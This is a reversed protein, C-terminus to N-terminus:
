EGRETWVRLGDDAAPAILVLGAMDTRIARTHTALLIGLLTPTPHGYDNIGVGILGVRANLQAYLEASQDASGHHAVKVVDIDRPAGARLLANQAAEGLDGLFIASISGLEIQITVSSPNGPETTGNPWLVVYPAEGLTGRDGRAVEDLEAGGAILEQRLRTDSQDGIPGVLVRDVKGILAPVGAVHDRDYHTLVLLAVRDIGLASLCASLKAPDPGADIVGIQGASRIVFADGQGVECGAIVWDAPRSAQTVAPGLLWAGLALAGIAALLGRAVVRWRRGIIALLLVAVVLAASLIGAPGSLWPLQAGPLRSTALALHGVVAAPIGAVWVLLVGLGHWLPLLLCALVGLMTAAPAFWGALINAPVGWLAINPNLLLLVPTCALQAALPVAVAPALAGLQPRMWVSLPGSLLLLGATAAVSLAFGANWALWPDLLLLTITAIGLADLGARPSGRQLAILAVVAMVAARLVSPQPTVLLVFGGLAILGCLVRLRRSGGFAAVAGWVAAVILACNAGSVAMLHTLSSVRMADALETSVSSTDGIALGPLLEGAVGPLAAAADRLGTRLAAAQALLGGARIHAQVSEVLLLTGVPEGPASRIVRGTLELRDGWALDRGLEGILIVNAGSRTGDVASVSAEARARDTQAIVGFRAGLPNAASTLQVAYQHSGEASLAMRAPAHVWVALATLLVCAAILVTVTRRWACAILVLLALACWDPWVTLGLATLYCALAAWLLPPLKM